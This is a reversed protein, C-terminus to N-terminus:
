SHTQTVMDAESTHPQTKLGLAQIPLIFTLIVCLTQLAHLCLLEHSYLLRSAIKGSERTTWGAAGNKPM